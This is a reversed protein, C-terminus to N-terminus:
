LKNYGFISRNFDIVAKIIVNAKRSKGLFLFFSIKTFTTISYFLLFITYQLINIKHKRMFYLRNRYNYYVSVDSFKGGSSSSEDHFLKSRGVYKIRYGSKIGRYLLDTDEWYLFYNEDFFGVDKFFTYPLLIACASAMNIYCSNNVDLDNYSFSKNITRGTFFNIGGNNNSYVLKGGVESSISPVLLCKEEVMKHLEYIFDRDLITDPNLLIVNNYSRSLAWKIGLNNGGAFGLNVKSYIINVDKFNELICDISNDNSNNDVILVNSLIFNNEIISELCKLIYRECNYNILIICSSTIDIM